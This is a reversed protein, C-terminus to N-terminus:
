PAASWRAACDRHPQDHGSRPGRLGAAAEVMDRHALRAAALENEMEGVLHALGPEDRRKRASALAADRAAEAIGVYVGYVLPLPIISAYLHFMPVWQGAPRRMSVASEPVIM